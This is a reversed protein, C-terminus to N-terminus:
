ILDALDAKVADILADQINQKDMLSPIIKDEVTGRMKLYHVIVANEQGNRHLRGMSQQYLELSQPTSFFVLIHGGYQFNLGHGASQPQAFLLPIEKNNWRKLQEATGDFLVGNKFHKQLRAVDHRYWYFCLIPNGNAGDVIEELAKLKHKHLEIVETNTEDAYIAGNSLQLLAGSLVAANASEIVEGNMLPLVKEKKLQNYVAREKKDMELEIVNHTIPPMDLHDEKTMSIAVDKIKEHIYDEHGDILLWEYPYGEPTRRGPYFHKDRYATINPGLRQGGDLLYILSWIDMLGNPSPTGTLEIWRHTFPAITKLAKFGVSAYGKFSQAEDIVVNLFPFSKGPFRKILSPVLERNIIYITPPDTEVKDLEIDRKKKTLGSLIKFRAKHTHEWKLIEDSWTIMAIRKPAIIITHGHLKNDKALDVMASLTILTNHTVIYDNILFLQEENDVTFCTMDRPEVEEINVIPTMLHYTSKYEGQKLKELHKDSSVIIKPTFLRVSIDHLKGDYVYPNVKCAIGLSLCLSQVQDALKQNLTSFSYHIAGKHSINVCDDSDLLGKLLEMRNEISDYMYEEPIFKEDSLKGKLKLNDLKDRVIDTNKRPISMLDAVKHIIQVENSSISLTQERLCGDGILIGLVYPHIIHEKKEFEVEQNHPIRYKYKTYGQSTTIKFDNIMEALTKNQIKKAYGYYPIIHEDCCIFSRGDKMTVKFARKNKHKYLALVKTPKGKRDYLYDGVKILGVKSMGDVTLLATDDDTCKGLGMDLFLGCRNNKKIFNVGAKQYDYLEAKITKNDM